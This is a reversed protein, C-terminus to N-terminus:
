VCFRQETSSQFRRVGVETVGLVTPCADVHGGGGGNNKNKYFYFWNLVNKHIRAGDINRFRFKRVTDDRAALTCYKIQKRQGKLAISPNEKLQSSINVIIFLMFIFNSDLLKEQSHM